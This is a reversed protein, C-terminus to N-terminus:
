GSKSDARLGIGCSMEKGIGIGIGCCILKSDSITSYKSNAASFNTCITCVM